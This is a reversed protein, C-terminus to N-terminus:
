QAGGPNGPQGGAPQAGSQGGTEPQPRPPQTPPAAPTTEAPETRNRAPPTASARPQAPATGTRAGSTSVLSRDTNPSAVAGENLAPALEPKAFDPPPSLRVFDIPREQMALDIRWEGEVLRARGVRVGMPMQGDDGSTVWMEGPIIKDPTEPEMLRAGNGRDGVLLARDQSLSGMVPIRSNFDTVLLIRSTYEGVRVVRGVLGSENVAAFGERVGNAAGANAIRTAAFPGDAEAVVRATISQGQTEGVLDLLKEYRDMRLAMTEALEKWRTLDRVEAELEAIKAEAAKDRGFGLSWGAAGASFSAVSATAGDMSRRSIKIGDRVASSTQIALVGVMALGLGVVAARAGVRPEGSRRRGYWAM